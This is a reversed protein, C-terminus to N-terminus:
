PRRGARAVLGLHARHDGLALALRREVVDPDAGVLAGAQDGAALDGVAVAEVQRGGDHGVDVVVHADGALLDEARDGDIRGNSVSSSAM